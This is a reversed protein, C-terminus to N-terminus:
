SLRFLDKCSLVYITRDFRNVNYNCDYDNFLAVSFKIVLYQFKKDMKFMIKFSM